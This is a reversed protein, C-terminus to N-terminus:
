GARRERQRALAAELEGTEILGVHESDVSGDPAVIYLTPFGLAGYRRAMEEGGLLVPYKVQKEDVLRLFAEHM